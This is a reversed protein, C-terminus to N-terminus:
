LACRMTKVQTLGGAAVAGAPYGSDVGVGCIYCICRITERNSGRVPHNLGIGVLVHGEITIIYGKSESAQQM